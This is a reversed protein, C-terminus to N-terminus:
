ALKGDTLVEEKNKNKNYHLPVTFILLIMGFTFIVAFVYSPWFSFVLFENYFEMLANIFLFFYAESVLRIYAGFHFFKNLKEYIFGLVKM